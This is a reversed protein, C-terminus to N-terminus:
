RKSLLVQWVQLNRARFSGVCSLLYYKWLRYFRDDYKSNNAKLKAWNAEFNDNWCMLTKEYDLGNDIHWNELVLLQEISSGIQQVSPIMGNPFVYKDLFAEGSTTSVNNGMTHLLFKGKSVLCSNVVEMYNRYNKVGVHELMGISVIRDYLINEDPLNRYDILKIQVDFDKCLNQAYKAQEISVTAGTVSVGYKEAAYRAFSGWGCGIELVRMGAKLDLKQCILDFKAEQAKELNKADKWYACSYVMRKDLMAEYLDNGLDYHHQGVNFARRVSQLNLIRSKIDFIIDTYKFRRHIRNKLLKCFFKDLEPCDWWNDLYAEGLGISGNLAVKKYFRSDFVKIDWPNQHTFSEEIINIDANSFVTSVKEKFNIM